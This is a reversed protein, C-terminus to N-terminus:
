QSNMADRERFEDVSGLWRLAGHAFRCISDERFFWCARKWLKVDSRRIRYRMNPTAPSLPRSDNKPSPRTQATTSVAASQGGLEQAAPRDCHRQVPNSTDITRQGNPFQLRQTAAYRSTLMEAAIVAHPIRHLPEAQFGAKARPAM